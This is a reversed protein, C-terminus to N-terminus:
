NKEIIYVANLLNDTVFNPKCNNAEKYNNNILITKCGANIGALIDKSRDGVMYSNKLDINWKKSATLILGPKPKRCECNDVDDHYCVFIDDLQIEEKLYNNM